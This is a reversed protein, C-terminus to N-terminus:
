AALVCTNQISELTRRRQNHSQGKVRSGLWDRLRHYEKRNKDRTCSVSLLTIDGRYMGDVLDFRLTFGRRGFSMFCEGSQKLTKEFEWVIMSIPAVTIGFKRYEKLEFVYAALSAAECRLIHSKRFVSTFLTDVFVENRKLSIPARTKLKRQQRSDSASTESGKKPLSRRRRPKRNSLRQQKAKDRKLQARKEDVTKNIREIAYAAASGECSLHFLGEGYQVAEFTVSQECADHNYRAYRWAIVAKGDQLLSHHFEGVYGERLMKRRVARSIAFDIQKRTLTACGEFLVRADALTYAMRTDGKSTCGLDVIGILESFM